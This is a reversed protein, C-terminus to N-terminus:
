LGLGDDLGDDREALGLARREENERELARDEEAIQAEVLPMHLSRGRQEYVEDGTREAEMLLHAQTLAIRDVEHAVVGELAGPDGRELRAMGAEGVAPGLHEALGWRVADRSTPDLYPYAGGARLVEAVERLGAQAEGRRAREQDRERERAQTRELAARLERLVEAIGELEETVRDQQAERAAVEAREREATLRALEAQREPARAADLERARRQIATHLGVRPEGFRESGVELHRGLADRVRGLPRGLAPDDGAEVGDRGLRAGERAAEWMAADWMRANAKVFRGRALAQGKARAAQTRADDRGAAREAALAEIREWVAEQVGDEDVGLRAAGEQMMVIARAKGAKQPAWVAESRATGMMAESALTGAEWARAAAEVLEARRMAQDREPRAQRDLADARGQIAAVLVGKPEGLRRAALEVRTRLRERERALPSGPEPEEAAGGRGTGVAEQEAAWLAADWARANAEVFPERAARQAAGMRAMAEPKGAERARQLAETREAVADVLRGRDMGYRAAGETLWGELEAEAARVPALVDEAPALGALAESAMLGADYGQAVEEVFARRERRRAEALRRGEAM